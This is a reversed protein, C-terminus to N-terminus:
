KKEPKLTIINCPLKGAVRRRRNYHKSPVNLYRFIEEDTLISSTSVPTWNGVMRWGESVTSLGVVHNDQTYIIVRRGGQRARQLIRKCEGKNRARRISLGKLSSVGAEKLVNRITDRSRKPNVGEFCQQLYAQEYDTFVQDPIEHLHTVGQIAAVFCTSSEKDGVGNRQKRRLVEIGPKM